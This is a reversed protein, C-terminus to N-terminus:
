NLLKSLYFLIVVVLVGCHFRDLQWRYKTLSLHFSPQISSLPFVLLSLLLPFLEMLLIIFPYLSEWRWSYVM